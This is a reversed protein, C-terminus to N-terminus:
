ASLLEIIALTTTDPQSELALLSSIASLADQTQIVSLMHSKREYEIQARHLIRKAHEVVDNSSLQNSAFTITQLEFLSLEACDILSGHLTTQKLTVELDAFGHLHLTIHRKTSFSSKMTLTPQKSWNLEFDIKQWVGMIEEWLTFQGDDGAYVHIDLNTPTETGFKVKGDLPLITGAKVLVPLEELPRYFTKEANGVYRMGSFFDYWTGEPLYGKTMALQAQNDQPTTIPCVLLNEGFYYENPYNYAANVEPHKYYLHHILCRSQDHNQKNMSDLYPILQHRLKLYRKMVLEHHHPYNWPEKGCFENCSSHLRMIPSFVGYQIWRTQLEDSKAGMMHGGIDHSWWGYGINSATTTFYPQFDLSKWSIISDGSFGVPYRHSGVGAYRSFTLGRSMQRLSDLYHFHNLMWLPDLGAVQTHSEQQWDVWWFDVGQKELPHHVCSFYAHLFNKNSIDFPIPLGEEPNMRLTKAMAPYADEFSRIGGAPHVNLTTKLNRDHLSKLFREPNPFLEKNWTYGTWGSGHKPDIDVLHWDMDIVSVSLPIDNQAFRDMLELYSEETYRYYRSWWNGLAFRPLIPQKGCLKYFDRLAGYYDHGHGFFYIDTGISSRPKVWGEHTLVLSNSDDFLSFGNRSIIGSNLPTEGDVFDLTRATGKLDNIPDGYHWTSHYASFNGIVEISLGSASFPNRDYRLRLHKSTIILQEPSDQISLDVNEFDRFVVSQTAENVFENKPNYELRVLQSTYFTIRFNQAQFTSM